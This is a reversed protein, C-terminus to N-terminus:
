SSALAPLAPDELRFVTWEQRPVAGLSRYFGIAPENWDLVSWELRSFGRHVCEEALAAVLQRGVGSRRHRPQVYLDELYIGHAGDWTSFTLFWLAMGAVEGGLEAVHGFLAQREGFLAAGLQTSTLRCRDPAKEYLALQHVLGVVADIDSRQIRRVPM